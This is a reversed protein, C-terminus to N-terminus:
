NPFQARLYWLTLSAVKAMSEGSVKDLTDDATHWAPFEFDILNIAPIGIMNLPVHDDLIPSHFYTIRDRTGLTEAAKFFGRALEPPSDPPLTIRLDVDGIMDWLVAFKFQKHRETARLDRAYHRSGYLGDTESFDRIAEEGDFYVIEVRWALGPDMALVRALEVLAGTGSGGDNAGVFRITSYLKTDYHACVIAQQSSAPAGRFRAVLNVFRVRGIPTDSEFAQEKADWGHKALQETLYARLQALEPSGAPRPGFDVVRKTYYMAREASFEKWIELPPAPAKMFTKERKPRNCAALGAALSVCLAVAILRAPMM